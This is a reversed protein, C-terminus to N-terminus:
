SVVNDCVNNFVCMIVCMTVFVNKEPMIFGPTSTSTPGPHGISQSLTLVSPVYSKQVKKFKSEKLSHNRCKQKKIEM